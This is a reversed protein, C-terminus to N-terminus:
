LFWIRVSNLKVEEGSETRVSFYSVLLFQRKDNIATSLILGRKNTHPANGRGVLGLLLSNRKLDRHRHLQLGGKCRWRSVNDVTILLFYHIGKGFRGLRHNRIDLLASLLMMSVIIWNFWLPSCCWVSLSETNATSSSHLAVDNQCHHRWHSPIVWFWQNKNTM